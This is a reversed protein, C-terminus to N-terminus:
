GSGYPSFGNFGSMGGELNGFGGQIVMPDGAIRNAAALNIREMADALQVAIASTDEEQKVMAKMAADLIVIEEYGSVGDLTTAFLTLPGQYAWVIGNDNVTGPVPWSPASGGTTGANLACYVQNAVTGNFTVSVTILQNQTVATATAYAVPLTAVLTPCCQYYLLRMQGALPGLGPLFNIIQSQVQWRINQWGQYSLPPQLPFSYFGRERLSYPRIPTWNVGSGDTCIDMGAEKYFDFPLQYNYVGQVVPLPYVGWAYNDGFKLILIDWLKSYSGNIMAGLESDTIYSDSNAGYANQQGDLDARQRVALAVQQYAVSRM